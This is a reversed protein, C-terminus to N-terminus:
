QEAAESTSPTRYETVPEMDTRAVIEGLITYMGIAATRVDFLAVESHARNYLENLTSISHYIREMEARLYAGTKGVAGKQHLYAGLRNVHDKETVGLKGDKGRGPLYEYTERKDRWLYTALDHLIDRCSWMAARWDQPNKSKLGNRVTDLHGTFGLTALCEEVKARYAQWLDQLADGYRLTSYSNSAFNFVLNEINTLLTQFVHKGYVNAERTEVRKQSLRIYKSSKRGTYETYGAQAASLIWDIGVWVDMEAHTVPEEETRHRDEIVSELVTEIGGAILWKTSGEISRRYWPLEVGKPYGSLENQLWTLQGNWSLIQCVHSCRRLANKLDVKGIFFADLVSKLIDIAEDQPESM